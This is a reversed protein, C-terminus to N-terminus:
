IKECTGLGLFVGSLVFSWIDTYKYLMLFYASTMGHIFCGALMIYYFLVWVVSLATFANAATRSTVRLCLRSVVTTILASLSFAIAPLAAQEYLLKYEMGSYSLATKEAIGNAMYYIAYALGSFLLILSIIIIIKNQRKM